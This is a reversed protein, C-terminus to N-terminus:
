VVKNRVLKWMWANIKPHYFIFFVLVGTLHDAPDAQSTIVSEYYCHYVDFKRDEWIESVGSEWIAQSMRPLKVSRCMLDWINLYKVSNMSFVFFAFSPILNNLFINWVDLQRSKKYSPDLSKINKINIGHM